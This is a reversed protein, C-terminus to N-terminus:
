RQKGTTPAPRYRFLLVRDGDQDTLSEAPDPIGGLKEAVRASAHNPEAVHSVLGPLGLTGFAHDRVARAAETAVGRGEAAETLLWGLELERDGWDLFLGCLGLVEGTGRDTVTWGALGRLVWGAVAQAFDLWATEPPFPGGIFRGRDTTWIPELVPWDEARPARLVLRETTLVPIPAAIADRHGAAQPIPRTWAANM